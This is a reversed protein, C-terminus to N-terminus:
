PRTTGSTPDPTLGKNLNVAPATVRESPDFASTPADEELLPIYVTRWDLEKEPRTGWYYGFAGAVVLLVVYGLIIISLM